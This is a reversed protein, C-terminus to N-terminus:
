SSRELDEIHEVYDAYTDADVPQKGYWVRDFVGVISGFTRALTPRKELSRIYEHNTLSRDYRLLGREDLALLASLYLYRIATRYDGSASLTQARKMAVTATLAADGEVDDPNIAREAVFSAELGRLVYFLVFFLVLSGAITVMWSPVPITINGDADEGGFLKSIWAWFRERLRQWWEELASTQKEPWQFEPASLITALMEGYQPQNFNPVTSQEADLLTTLFLDLQSRNLPKARLLAVLHSHDVPVVTGDPLRVADIAAWQDALQATDTTTTHPQIVLAHTDEVLQWYADIPWPPEAASVSVAVTFGALICGLLLFFREHLSV